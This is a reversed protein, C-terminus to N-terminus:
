AKGERTELLPMRERDRVREKLEGLVRHEEKETSKKSSKSGLKKLESCFETIQNLIERGGLLNRASFTSRLQPKKEHELPNGFQKKVETSPKSAAKKSKTTRGNPIPASVNPNKNESDMSNKSFYSGRARLSKQTPVKAAAASSSNIEQEKQKVDRRNRDRFPFIESISVSRLLKVKSYRIPKLFDEANKPHKCDPNCFRPEDDIPEDPASLDVWQPADFNEYMDDKVFISEVNKWDINEPEM